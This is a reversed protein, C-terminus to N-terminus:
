QSQFAVQPGVGQQRGLIEEPTEVVVIANGAEFKITTTTMGDYRELATARELNVFITANKSVITVRVWNM